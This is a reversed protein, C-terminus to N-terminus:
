ANGIRLLVKGSKGPQEAAVVASRVDALPFEAGVESTLVGRKVLDTLTRVLGLKSLLPMREMVRGLWFGEITAGVTMLERPSFVLPESSLTGYLLLRAGSGLCGVVASATAGGVPDIAYRVGDAGVHRFVEERFEEASHRAPDFEVVADGGQSRLEDAQEARRVVNLTRFGYQRGLRVVMRGLASGAATQLLWAGRPVDLVRRTMLYATAPNVFFMAAQDIPLAASLPIVFRAPLAVREKWNGTGPNMVAVRKGYLMRGYLGAQGSEVIGVGEYGPIAPLDPRKGYTGRITMLDSPNVPSALMRVLVDGPGAQPPPVDCVTLVAAPEGFADFVAAQM